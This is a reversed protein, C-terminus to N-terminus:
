PCGCPSRGMSITRSPGRRPGDSPAAGGQTGTPLSADLKPVRCGNAACPRKSHHRLAPQHWQTDAGDSPMQDDIVREPVLGTLSILGLSARRSMALCACAASLASLKATHSVRRRESVAASVTAGPGADAIARLAAQEADSLDYLAPVSVNRDVIEDAAAAALEAASLDM